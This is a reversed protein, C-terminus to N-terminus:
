GRCFFRFYLTQRSEFGPSRKKTKYLISCQAILDAFMYEGHFSGHFDNGLFFIAAEMSATSPEVSPEVAEVSAETVETSATM